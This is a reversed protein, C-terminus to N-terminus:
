LGIEQNNKFHPKTGSALTDEYVKLVATEIKTRAEVNIPHAIDMFTGDKLKKNPMAVFVNVDGKIIKIDRVMFSNNLVISAYAKLRDENVLWIRINTIKM